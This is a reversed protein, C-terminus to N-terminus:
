PTTDAGDELTYPPSLSKDSAPNWKWAADYNRTPKSEYGCKKCRSSWLDDKIEHVLVTYNSLCKPCSDKM